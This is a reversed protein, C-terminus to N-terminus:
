TQEDEEDVSYDVNSVRKVMRSRASPIEVPYVKYFLSAKHPEESVLRSKEEGEPRHLELKIKYAQDVSSEMLIPSDHLIQLMRGIIQHESLVRFKIDSELRVTIMYYLNVFLSPYGQREAGMNIMSSRTVEESKRIDYLCVAVVADGRDKVTCVRISDRKTVVDPTLNDQLIALLTNDIDTIIGYSM